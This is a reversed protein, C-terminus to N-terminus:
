AARPALLLKLAAALSARSPERHSMIIARTYYDLARALKAPEVGYDALETCDWADKLLDDLDGATLKQHLYLRNASSPPNTVGFKTKIRNGARQLARDVMQEAAFVLGTLEAADPRRAAPLERVPHSAISPAPRAEALDRNDTIEPLEVGLLRNAIAVLEPTSSGRAMTRLLAKRLNEESMMDAATFGNELLTREDSLLLRENLELAEKSRNPRLRMQSTDAGIRFRQVDDVEGALAIRLYGTTLGTTIIKLTPEGHIKVNNEDSLWANWHNSGANGLLIDTPIDMGRASRTILEERLAPAAADLESWFTIPKKPLKDMYEGPILAILPLMAEASEPHQIAISAIDYLQEAMGQADGAEVADRPPAMPDGANLQRTPMSPFITEAPLPLLGGGTLRSDIQASTRKTLQLLENLVPLVARTPADAKKKNRPHPRWLQIVMRGPPLEKGNVKWRGNTRSVETAAAVSWDEVIGFTGIEPGILYGEGAVTFHIGLLRLLEAHGEEGGYLEDLAALAVENTSANWNGDADREEVILRARSLLSGMITPAQRYEGIVDYFDWASRQWEEGGRLNGDQDKKSGKPKFSFNRASATISRPAISRERRPM